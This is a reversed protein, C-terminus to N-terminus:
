RKNEEVEGIEVDERENFGIVLDGRKNWKKWAVYEKPMSLIKIKIFIVFIKYDGAIGYVAHIM